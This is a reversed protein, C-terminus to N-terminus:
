VPEIASEIEGFKCTMPQLIKLSNLGIKKQDGLTNLVETKLVYFEWQDMNMPDIKGQDKEKLLCFVYYDASRMKQESLENGKGTWVYKPAIDFNIESYDNQEWSQVFASSKVEIKIGDETELDYSDWDIRISMNIGLDKAVLYEALVGRATNSLLDSNAWQWFDLVNFELPDSSTTFIENGSLRTPPIPPLLPM